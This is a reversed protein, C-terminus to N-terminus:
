GSSALFFCFCFYVLFLINCTNFQKSPSANMNQWSSFSVVKNCTKNTTLKCNRKKFARNLTRSMCHMDGNLVSCYEIHPGSLRNCLSHDFPYKFFENILCFFSLFFLTFCHWLGSYWRNPQSPVDISFYIDCFKIKLVWKKQTVKKKAIKYWFNTM